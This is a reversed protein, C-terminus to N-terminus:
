KHFTGTGSQLSPNDYHMEILIIRHTSQPGGLPLAVDPPFVFDQM